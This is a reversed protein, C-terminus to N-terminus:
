GYRLNTASCGIPSKARMAEAFKGINGKGLRGAQALKFSKGLALAIALVAGHSLNSLLHDSEM